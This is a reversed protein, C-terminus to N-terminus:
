VFGDYGGAWEHLGATTRGSDTRPIWHVETSATRRRANIPKAEDVPRMAAGRARTDANPHHSSSPAVPAGDSRYRGSINRRRSARSRCSMPTEHCVTDSWLLRTDDLPRNHRRLANRHSSVHNPLRQWELHSLQSDLLSMTPSLLLGEVQPSPCDSMAGNVSPHTSATATPRAPGRGLSHFRTAVLSQRGLSKPVVVQYASIPEPTNAPFDFVLAWFKM